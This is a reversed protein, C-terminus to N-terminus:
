KKPLLPALNFIQLTIRRNLFPFMNQIGQNQLSHSWPHSYAQLTPLLDKSIRYHVM